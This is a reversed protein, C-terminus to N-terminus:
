VNNIMNARSQAKALHTAINLYGQSDAHNFSGVKEMSSSNSDYLTKVNSTGLLEIKEIRLNGKYANFVIGGSIDKSINKIVALLDSCHPSFWEGRYIAEGFLRSVEDFFRRRDRDLYLELLKGYAAYVITLGPAEYIGRSKIGVRRNEVVDVGIGIGNRGGILNLMELMKLTSDFGMKGDERSLVYTLKGETFTLFLKEVGDKADKPSVGMKFSVFDTPTELSELKGAEHTLGLLNADTSYPKEITASIKLGHEHCYDIMEKRGGFLELFEPDRWPAYVGLEPALHAAALEFRIQDNGRGTAGHSIIGVGRKVIEPIAVKMAAMRAIGTTNLYGGEYAGQGQVLLLAYECLLEKGDILIAEEAGAAMMRRPVDEIDNEDPQGLDVTVSLVKVGKTHLWHIVTTSDLGGSALFAVKKGYLDNVLM